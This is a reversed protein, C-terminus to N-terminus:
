GIDARSFHAGIAGGAMQGAEQCSWVNLTGAQMESMAPFAMGDDDWIAHSFINRIVVYNDVCIGRELSM